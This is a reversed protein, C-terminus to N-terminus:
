SRSEKGSQSREPDSPDAKALNYLNAQLLSQIKDKKRKKKSQEDELKKKKQSLSSGMYEEYYKLHVRGSCHEESNLNKECLKCQVRLDGAGVEIVDYIQWDDLCRPPTWDPFTHGSSAEVCLARPYRSGPFLPERLQPQNLLIHPVSAHRVRMFHRWVTEMYRRKGGETRMSDNFDRLHKQHLHGRM